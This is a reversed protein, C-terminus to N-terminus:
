EVSANFHNLVSTFSLSPLIKLALEIVSSFDLCFYSLLYIEIIHCSFLCDSIIYCKFKPNVLLDSISSNLYRQRSFSVASIFFSGYLIQFLFSLKYILVNNLWFGLLNIFVFFILSCSHTDFIETLFSTLCENFYNVGSM